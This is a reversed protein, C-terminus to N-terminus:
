AATERQKAHSRLVDRLPRCDAKPLLGFPTGSGNTTMRSTFERAFVVDSWEICGFDDFVYFVLADTAQATRKHADHAALEISHNPTDHRFEAKADVWFFWGLTPHVVALDPLWRVVLDFRRLADKMRDSFLGQGWPSVDFGMDTLRAAVRAELETAVSIRTAFTTPAVEVTV